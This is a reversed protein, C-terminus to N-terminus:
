FEDLGVYDLEPAMKGVYISNLSKLWLVEKLDVLLEM